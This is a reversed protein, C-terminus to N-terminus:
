LFRSSGTTSIKSGSLPRSWDSDSVSMQGHMTQYALLLNSNTVGLFNLLLFYGCHEVVVGVDGALKKTPRQDSSDPESSDERKRKKLRRTGFSYADRYSEIEGPTIPHLVSDPATVRRRPNYPIASSPPAPPPLMTPSAVPRQRLASM